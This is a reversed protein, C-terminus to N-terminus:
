RFLVRNSTVDKKLLTNSNKLLGKTGDSPPKTPIAPPKLNPNGPSPIRPPFLLSPPLPPPAPPAPAVTELMISRTIQEGSPDTIRLTLIQQGPTSSLTYNLSGQAPVSGPIPLLEVRTQPSAEIQWAIAIAKPEANPPIEFRFTSTQGIEQGNIQFSRIQPPPPPPPPQIRILPTRKTTEQGTRSTLVLQFTYTGAQTTATPVSRCTLQTDLRCLSQLEAPLGNEFSYRRLPSSISGDAAIGIVQLERIQRPASIDWNLGIPPAIANATPTPNPTQTTPAPGPIQYVSATPSIQLIAPKPIPAIAISDTTMSQVPIQRDKAFVQLQFTHTGPQAPTTVIGQCRLTDVEPVKISECFGIQNRQQLAPPINGAFNYSKRDIEVGQQLHIITVRDIDPLHSITWDLRIPDGREAQYIQPKGTAPDIANSVSLIQPSPPPPPIPKFVTRSLILFAIAGMAGLGALVLLALVWWPRAQWLITAQTSTGSISATPPQDRYFEELELNFQLDQGRGRWARRWWKKPTAQLPLSTLTGPELTVRDPDVIYRFLHEPDSARVSVTRTVNGPNMLTLDFRGGDAPVRQFTPQIQLDLRDSVPIQLYVVDLLVLSEDNSSTLRLTPFYNGAPTYDPPHLALVIEGSCGPNLELGDTEQVRGTLELNSEPYRVTFWTAVLEPCTLYFRDVRKSGNKVRVTVNLSQGAPLNYPQAATTIPQVTFLPDTGWDGDQASPLVRLQQPRRVPPKDPYQAQADILVEYNYVDPAAQAPIEFTLRVDRSEHAELHFPNRESFSCWRLLPESKADTAVIWIDIDATRDGLNKVVIRRTLTSGRKGERNNDSSDEIFLPSTLLQM